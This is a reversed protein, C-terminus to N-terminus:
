CKVDLCEEEWRLGSVRSLRVLPLSSRSDLGFSALAHRARVMTAALAVWEDDTRVLGFRFGSGTCNMRGVLGAEWVETLARDDRVDRSM